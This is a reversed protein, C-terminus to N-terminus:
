GIITIITIITIIIIIETSKKEERVLEKISRLLDSIMEM